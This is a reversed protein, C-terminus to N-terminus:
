SNGARFVPEQLHTSFSTAPPEKELFACVDDAQHGVIIYIHDLCLGDLANLVRKVIPKGLVEHLVKPLSSKMRKGQGAALLIAMTSINRKESM